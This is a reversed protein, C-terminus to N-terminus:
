QDIQPLLKDLNIKLNAYSQIRLTRLEEKNVSEHLNGNSLVVLSNHYKSIFKHCDTM